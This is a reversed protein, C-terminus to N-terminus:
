RVIISHSALIYRALLPFYPIVASLLQPNMHDSNGEEEGVARELKTKSPIPLCLKIKDESHLM